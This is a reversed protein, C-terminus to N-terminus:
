LFALNKEYMKEFILYWLIKLFFGLFETTKCVLNRDDSVWITFFMIKLIKKRFYKTKHFNQANLLIWRSTHFIGLWKMSMRYCFCLNQTNKRFFTTKHVMQTNGFMQTVVEFHIFFWIANEFNLFLVYKQAISLHLIFM